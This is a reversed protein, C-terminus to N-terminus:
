KARVLVTAFRDQAQQAWWSAVPSGNQIVSFAFNRKAFGSLASAEDTTGTKAHIHGRAPPDTMRHELTGSKGSVALVTFFNARLTPDSWATHLLTALTRTTMRDLTSLGSGDVVRVGNMPIGDARLVRRIVTAGAASTGRADLAGLQKLLMEATYNDSHRDMFKLIGILHASTIRAMPVASSWAKAVRSKGSVKIGAAGLVNKFAVAAQLAPHANQHNRYVDRDVTLASLPPSEEYEFSSKWGAVTRQRDFFSEDGVIHGTVRRIGDGRLERALLHLGHTSLTPDGYGKLVLNGHWVRGQGRGEGLVDTHFRFRTGLRVLSAYTVLLKENSAPALPLSRHFQFVPQGTRLDIAFAGTRARSIQPVVLAKALRHALTSGPQAGAIGAGFLVALAAGLAAVRRM